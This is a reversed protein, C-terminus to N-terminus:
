RERPVDVHFNQERMRRALDELADPVTAGFGGMGQQLNRGVQACIVPGEWYLIIEAAEIREM